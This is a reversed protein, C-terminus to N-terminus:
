IRRGQSKLEGAGQLLGMNIVLDIFRDRYEPLAQLLLRGASYSEAVKRDEPIRALVELKQESLYRILPRFRWAGPQHSVGHANRM